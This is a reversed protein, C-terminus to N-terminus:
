TLCGPHDHGRVRIPSAQQPDVFNSQHCKLQLGTGSTARAMALRFAHGMHVLEPGMEGAVLMSCSDADVFGCDPGVNLHDLARATRWCFLLAM